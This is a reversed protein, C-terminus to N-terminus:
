WWKETTEVGPGKVHVLYLGSAVTSGGGTDGAWFYTSVGAPAAGEYVTKVFGGNANYVKITTTGAKLTTVDPKCKGGKLPRLMNDTPVVMKHANMVYYDLTTAAATGGINNVTVGTYEGTDNGARRRNQVM